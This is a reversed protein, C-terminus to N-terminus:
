QALSAKRTHFLWWLGVIPLVLPVYGYGQGFHSWVSALPFLEPRIFSFIGVGIVGVLEVSLAATAIKWSVADKKALFVTAVIYIVASIASLTISVPAEDFRRLLQYAARAGASLSFIWYIVILLRGFGTNKRQASPAM